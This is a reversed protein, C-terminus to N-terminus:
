TQRQFSKLEYNTIKLKKRKTAIRVLGSEKIAFFEKATYNPPKLSITVEQWTIIKNKINCNIGLEHQIDRGLM